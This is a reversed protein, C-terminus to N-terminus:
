LQKEFFLLDFISADYNNCGRNNKQTHIIIHLFKNSMMMNDVM